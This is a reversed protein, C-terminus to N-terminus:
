VPHMCVDDDDLQKVKSDEGGDGGLRRKKTRENRQANFLNTGVHTTCGDSEVQLIKNSFTLCMLPLLCSNVCIKIEWLLAARSLTNIFFQRIVLDRNCLYRLPCEKFNPKANEIYVTQTLNVWKPGM